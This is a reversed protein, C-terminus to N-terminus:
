HWAGGMTLYWYTDEPGKAVDIGAHMGLKRAIFYRFGLGQVARAPSDSFDGFSEAAKGAGVFGIASFRPHFAWRVESEVLAVADGQYRMAPIGRMSIFPLMYFPVDGSVIDAEVRLGLVWKDNLKFYKRAFALTSTYDFDSGIADDNRMVRLKAELGASPTFPTDRSDYYLFGGIASLQTDLSPVPAGPPLALGFEFETKVNSYDYEAGLFFDTDKWRFSIPQQTMFGEGNFKLGDDFSTSGASGYFTLNISAYGAIGEYRIHDNKWHAFHGGGVLWSGNGTKAAAVATVDPLVFDGSGEATEQGADAFDKEEYDKPPHFFLAALGLGQEVAPETIIIPVPMFGTANNLVWDSMDMWGDTDKFQDTLSGAYVPAGCCIIATVAAVMFIPGARLRM